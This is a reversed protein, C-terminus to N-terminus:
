LGLCKKATESLVDVLLNYMSNKVLEGAKSIGKKYKAASVPTSPTDVILEPIASKILEKTSSDLDDDLSLLEVVNNLIRETWPYPKGCEHCYYPLKYPRNELDEVSDTEPLGHIPSNCYVCTSYTKEGCQTCYNQTYLNYKSLVHGKLCITAGYYPGHSM